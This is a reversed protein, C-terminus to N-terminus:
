WLKWEDDDHTATGDDSVEYGATATAEGGGIDPWAGESLVIIEAETVGL